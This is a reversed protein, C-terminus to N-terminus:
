GIRCRFGRGRITQIYNSAGPSVTDLKHRINGITKAITNNQVWGNWVRTALDDYSRVRGPQVALYRLTRHETDSFYSPAVRHGDVIFQDFHADYYIGSLLGHRSKDSPAAASKVFKETVVGGSLVVEITFNPNNAIMIKDADHLFQPAGPTLRNGNVWTGNMSRLDDVIYGEAQVYEIKFHRRSIIRTNGELFRCLNLRCTDSAGAILPGKPNVDYSKDTQPFYLTLDSESSPQTALTVEAEIQPKNTFM